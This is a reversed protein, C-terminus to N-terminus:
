ECEFTSKSSLRNQKTLNTQSAFMFGFLIAEVITRNGQPLVAKKDYLHAM